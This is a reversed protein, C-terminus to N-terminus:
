AIRRLRVAALAAIVILYCVSVISLEMFTRYATRGLVDYISFAIVVIALGTFIRLAMPLRDEYNVLMMIAPASVLFVYDWGQPSLLPMLTLLLAAEIAEPFPLGRRRLIVLAALALLAAATVVALTSATSGPGLWKAYMAALSVNDPSLLNPATSGSVTRWWAELLAVNGRIGYLSAPLLLAALATIAAAAISAIQRRAVLWPLFIAAYPKIVIALAFLMGGAAERGSRLLAVAAVAIVALLLNVQGLVLEHGLFKATAVFTVAVLIWVSRRREPLVDVALAFLVVLLVSSIGFWIAKAAHLPLMGVPIALVAFAPLYKLVYHEDEVRYLPEAARARVGAKWYVEFDPMKGAAKVSFVVSMAAAAAAISVLIWIRRRASTETSRASPVAVGGV